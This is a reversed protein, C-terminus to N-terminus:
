VRTGWHLFPAGVASPARARATHQMHVARIRAHTWLGCLKWAPNDVPRKRLATGFSVYVAARDEGGSEEKEERVIPWDGLM